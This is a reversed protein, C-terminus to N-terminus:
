RATAWWPQNNDSAFEQPSVRNFTIYEQRKLPQLESPMSGGVPVMKFISIHRCAPNSSLKQLRAWAAAFSTFPAADAKDQGDFLVALEFRGNETKPQRMQDAKSLEKFPVSKKTQTKFTKKM